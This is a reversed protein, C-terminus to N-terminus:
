DGHINAANAVQTWKAVERGIFAAYQDVTSGVVVAGGAELRKKVDPMRLIAVIEKNLKDIINKPTGAPVNVGQWGLAEFGPLGSEAVTPVNPLSPAREASTVAIAKVMGAQVKPLVGVLNDLLMDIQGGLLDTMAATAGKYPVHVIDTKTMSKFMEGTFHTSSGNGGSGFTLKNPSRKAFEILGKVNDIPLNNRAVIILPATAVLTVPALDKIFDFSLTKYYGVSIPNAVTAMLLTYGDPAAAAATQSGVNGAAGVRNEVIVPQGLREGLKQGVTRAVIDTSSGAPFPVIIRIPKNPYEQAFACNGTLAITIALLAMGVVVLNRQM